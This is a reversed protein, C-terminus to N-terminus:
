PRLAPPLGREQEISLTKVDNFMVEPHLFATSYIERVRGQADLLFMKLMHNYLRTPRGKSDVQVQVSQGLDDIIPQLQSVSATTLFHWRLASAADALPGAYLRMAEPTDNVPDFSLSVFRVRRALEPAALLRERLEHLTAFALPCGIPDACYTYMFSLLTIRGKTFRDFDYAHGDSGLVKGNPAQQIVPLAYSGAAPAIFQQRPRRTLESARGSAAILLVCVWAVCRARLRLIKGSQM